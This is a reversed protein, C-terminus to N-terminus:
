WFIASDQLRNLRKQCHKRESQLKAAFWGAGYLANTDAAIQQQYRQQYQLNNYYQELSKQAKILQKLCRKSKKTSYLPAAFESMYKLADLHRYIKNLINVTSDDPYLCSSELNNRESVNHELDNRDKDGFIQVAELLKVHQKSLIIPLEDVALTYSEAEICSDTMTFEILALLTLQFTNTCVADIPKITTKELAATWDVSPAGHEQLTPEIDSILSNLELHDDLLTTTQKLIPHWEADLQESFTSFADLAVSLRKLGMSLQRVHNHDDSGAAIASSNPLIQLLCNHVVARIFTPVSSTKSINLQALDASVAASYDQGNILLGGREAKTVTSLCLKHRKCWIKATEFLFEIEGSILEFEIEQIAQRQSEDNGDIIEGDDYAVELSSSHEDKGNALLRTTRQVDTVYQRTLNKALKKLKFDALAPAISTEKYISLDPMLSNNDLMAQVHENDLVANHELRAAIGDGGAKITQVWTDGEQRIRLGIGAKALQQKRTDFYHAAMHIDQSSKVKAQRMLGKLQAQPVLFKLEIEQMLKERLKLYRCNYFIGTKILAQKLWNVTEVLSPSNIMKHTADSFSLNHLSYHNHKITTM